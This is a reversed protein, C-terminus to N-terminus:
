PLLEEIVQALGDEDNGPAIRDAVAKAEADGNAMTVGIGAVQLMSVDNSGDGFAMCNERTLGLHAM